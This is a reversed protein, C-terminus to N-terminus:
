LARVQTWMSAPKATLYLLSPMFQARCLSNALLACNRLHYELIDSCVVRSYDHARILLDLLVCLRRM